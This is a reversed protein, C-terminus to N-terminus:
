NTTSNALSGNVTLQELRQPMEFTRKGGGGCPRIQMVHELLPQLPNWAPARGCFTQGGPTNIVLNHSGDAALWRDLIETRTSLMMGNFMNDEIRNGSRRNEPLPQPAFVGLRRSADAVPAPWEILEVSDLLRATTLIVEKGPPQQDARYETEELGALEPVAQKDPAETETKVAPLETKKSEPEEVFPKETPPPSLLTINLPVTSTTMHDNQLVPILLLLAHLAVALFLWLSDQANWRKIITATATM